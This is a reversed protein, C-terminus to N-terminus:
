PSALLKGWGQVPPAIGEHILTWPTAIPNTVVPVGFDEELAPIVALSRWAGGPLFLAEAQPANRMADRGSEIARRVGMEISMGFAQAINQGLHNSYLVEIGDDALYQIVRQALEETWRCGMAVRNAGLHHLAQIVSEADTTAPVGTKQQTADLLELVKKRGTHASIPFGVISIRDVKQQVLQDVCGWYDQLAERVGEATTYDAPLVHTHVQLIDPPLLPESPLRTEGPPEARGPGVLGFRYRPSAQQM